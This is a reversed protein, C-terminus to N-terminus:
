EAVFVPYLIIDNTVKMVGKGMSNVYLISTNYDWGSYFGAFFYGDKSPIDLVFDKSGSEVLAYRVEANENDDMYYRITVYNEEKDEATKREDRRMACNGIGALTFMVIALLFAIITGGIYYVRM